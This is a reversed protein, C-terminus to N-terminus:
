RVLVVSAGSFFNEHDHSRNLLASVISMVRQDVPKISYKVLCYSPVLSNM